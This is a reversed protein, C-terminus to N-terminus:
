QDRLLLSQCIVPPKEHRHRISEAAERDRVEENPGHKIICDCYTVNHQLQTRKQICCLSVDMQLIFYLVLDLSTHYTPGVILILYISVNM